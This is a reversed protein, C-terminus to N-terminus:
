RWSKVEASKMWQEYILFTTNMQSSQKASWFEFTDYVEAIIWFKKKLMLGCFYQM